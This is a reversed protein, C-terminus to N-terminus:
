PLTMSVSVRWETHIGFPHMQGERPSDVDRPSDVPHTHRCVCVEVHEWTAFEWRACKAGIEAELLRVVEAGARGDVFAGEVTRMEIFGDGNPDFLRFANQVFQDRLAEADHASASSASSASSTASSSGSTACLKRIRGARQVGQRLLPLM